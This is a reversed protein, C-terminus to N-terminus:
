DFNQLEINFTDKKPRKNKKKSEITNKKKIMPENKRKKIEDKSMRSERRLTKKKKKKKEENYHIEYLNNYRTVIRKVKTMYIVYKPIFFTFLCRYCSKENREKYHNNVMYLVFSNWIFCIVISIVSVTILLPYFWVKVVYNGYVQYIDDFILLGLYYIGALCCFVLFSITLAKIRYCVEVFNKRKELTNPIFNFFSYNESHIIEYQGAKLIQASKELITENKIKKKLHSTSYDNLLPKYLGKQINQRKVKRYDYLKIDVIGLYEVDVTREIYFKMEKSLFAKLNTNQKNKKSQIMGRSSLKTSFHNLSQVSYDIDSLSENEKQISIEKKIKLFIGIAVLKVKLKKIEKKKSFSRPALFFKVFEEIDNRKEFWNDNVINNYGCIYMLAMSIVWGIINGSIVFCFGVFVDIARVPLEDITIKKEIDRKNIVETKYNFPLYYYPLLSCFVGIILCLLEIFFRVHKPISYHYSNFVRFFSFSHLLTFISLSFTGREKLSRVSEFQYRLRVEDGKKQLDLKNQDEKYDSILFYIGFALFLLITMLYFSLSFINLPKVEKIPYQISKYYTALEPDDIVTIEGTHNCVCQIIKNENDIYTECFSDQSKINSVPVCMKNDIREGEKFNNPLTVKYSLNTLKQNNDRDWVDFNVSYSSTSTYKNNNNEYIVTPNHYILFLFNLDLVSANNDSSRLSTEQNLLQYNKADICFIADDNCDKDSSIEDRTVSLVCDNSDKSIDKESISIFKREKTPVIVLSSFSKCFLLMKEGKLAKSMLYNSMKGLYTKIQNYLNLNERETSYAIINQLNRYLYILTDENQAEDKNNNIKDISEFIINAITQYRKDLDNTEELTRLTPNEKCKSLENLILTVGQLFVSAPLTSSKELCNKLYINIVQAYYGLESLTISCFFIDNDKNEILLNYIRNARDLDWGATNITRKLDIFNNGKKIETSKKFYTKQQYEDEIEVWITSTVPVYTNLYSTRSNTLSLPIKDGYCNEYYFKYRYERSNEDKENKNSVSLNMSTIYSIPIPELSDLTYSIEFNLNHLPLVTVVLESQAVESSDDKSEVTVYITYTTNPKLSNKSIKLIPENLGTTTYQESLSSVNWTYFYNNQNFVEDTPPNYYDVYFTNIELSSVFDNGSVIKINNEEEKRLTNDKFQCYKGSSDKCICEDKQKDCTGGNLCQYLCKTKDLCTMTSDDPETDGSCSAVCNHDVLYMPPSLAKCKVCKKQYKGYEGKCSSVCNFEDDLYLGNICEDCNNNLTKPGKSCEQCNSHCDKLIGTSDDYIYTKSKQTELCEGKYIFLYKPDKKSCEVCKNEFQTLHDPCTLLCQNDLFYYTGNCSDCRHNDYDGYESCTACTDYCPKILFTDSNKIYYGDPKTPICAGDLNYQGITKCNLCKGNSVDSVYNEDCRALCKEESYDLFYPTVCKFCKTPDSPNLTECNEINNEELARLNINSKNIINDISIIKKNENKTLHNLCSLELYKISLSFKFTKPFCMMPEEYIYFTGNFYFECFITLNNKEYKCSLENIENNKPVENSKDYFTSPNIDNMFVLKVENLIYFFIFFSLRELIRM